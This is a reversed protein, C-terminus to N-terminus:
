HSTIVYGCGTVFFIPLTSGYQRPNIRWAGNHSFNNSQKITTFQWGM